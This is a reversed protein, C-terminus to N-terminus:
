VLTIEKYNISCQRQIYGLRKCYKEKFHAKSLKCPCFHKNSINRHKSQNKSHVNQNQNKLCTKIMEATMGDCPSPCHQTLNFILLQLQLPCPPPFFPYRQPVQHLKPLFHKPKTKCYLNLLFSRIQPLCPSTSLQAIQDLKKIRFM